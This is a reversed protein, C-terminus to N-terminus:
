LEPGRKGIGDDIITGNGLVTAIMWALIPDVRRGPLTRIGIPFRVISPYRM